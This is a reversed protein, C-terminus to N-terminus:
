LKGGKKNWQWFPLCSYGEADYEGTSTCGWVQNVMDFYCNTTGVSCFAADTTSSFKCGFVAECKQRNEERENEQDDRCTKYDDDCNLLAAGQALPFDPDEGVGLAVCSDDEFDPPCEPLPFPPQLGIDARVVPASSLIGVVGAVFGIGAFLVYWKSWNSSMNHIVVQKSKM